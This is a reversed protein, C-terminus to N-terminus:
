GPGQRNGGPYSGGGAVKGCPTLRRRADHLVNFITNVKLYQNPYIPKCTKPDVPM